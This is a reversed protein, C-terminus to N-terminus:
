LYALYGCSACRLTGHERTLVGGDCEACAGEITTDSSSTTQFAQMLQGLDDIRRQHAALQGHLNETTQSRRPTRTRRRKRGHYSM